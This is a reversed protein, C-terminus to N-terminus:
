QETETITVKETKRIHIEPTQHVSDYSASSSAIPKNTTKSVTNNQKAAEVRADVYSSQSPTHTPYVTARGTAPNLGFVLLLVSIVITMLIFPIFVIIWSVIDLGRSCLYNLLITFIAAVWSKMFATNYQGKMTDIIIQVISFVLYILAPSCLKVFVM